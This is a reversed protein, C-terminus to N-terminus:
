VMRFSERAYDAFRDVLEEYSLNSNAINDRIKDKTDQYYSKADFAKGADIATQEAYSTHLISIKEIYKDLDGTLENVRDPMATGYEVAVTEPYGAKQLHTTVEGGYLGRLADAYKSPLERDGRRAFGITSRPIGTAEAIWVDTRTDHLFQLRQTDPENM